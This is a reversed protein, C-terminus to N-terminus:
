SPPAYLSQWAGMHPYLDAALTGLIQRLHDLDHYAWEVVHEELTVRGHRPHVSAHALQESALTHLWRLNSARAAIWEDLMDTPDGPPPAPPSPLVLVGDEEAVRRLRPGIIEREAFLLHGLVQRPSWGDDTSQRDLAGAALNEVVARLVAPTGAM